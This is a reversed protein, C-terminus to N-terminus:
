DLSYPLLSSLFYSLFSESVELQRTDVKITESAGNWKIKKGEKCIINTAMLVNLADYV